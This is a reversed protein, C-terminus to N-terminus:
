ARPRYPRSVSALGSRAASCSPSLGVAAAPSPPLRHSVHTQGVSRAESQSARELSAVPSRLPLRASRPLLIDYRLSVAAQLPFRAGTALRSGYKGPLVVLQHDLPEVLVLQLLECSGVGLVISTLISAFRSSSSSSRVSSTAFAHSPPVVNGPVMASAPAIEPLPM